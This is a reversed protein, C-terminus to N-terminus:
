GTYNDPALASLSVGMRAGNARWYACLQWEFGVLAIPQSAIEFVNGEPGTQEAFDPVTLAIKARTASFKLKKLYSKQNIKVNIGDFKCAM